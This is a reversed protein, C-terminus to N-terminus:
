TCCLKGTFNFSAQSGAVTTVNASGGLAKWNSDFLIGPDQNEVRLVAPYFPASPSPTFRLYDFWFTNGKITTVNVTIEHPGDSLVGQECLLWNNEQFQFPKAAGISIGDVFCEWKPDFATDGPNKKLNTTGVISITTGSDGNLSSMRIFCSLYLRVRSHFHFAVTPTREMHPAFIHQGMTELGM